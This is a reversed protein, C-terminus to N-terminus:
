KIYINKREKRRTEAEGENQSVETRYSTIHEHERREIQVINSEGEGNAKVRRRTNERWLM